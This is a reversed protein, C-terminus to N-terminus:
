LSFGHFSSLFQLGGGSSPRTLQSGRMVMCAPRCNMAYIVVTLPVTVHCACCNCRSVSTRWHRRSPWLSPCCGTGPSCKTSRLVCGAFKLVHRLSMRGFCLVWLGADWDSRASAAGHSIRSLELSTVMCNESQLSPGLGACPWGCSVSCPTGCRAAESYRERSIALQLELQLGITPDKTNAVDERCTRDIDTITETRIAIEAAPHSM